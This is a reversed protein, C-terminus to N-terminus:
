PAIGPAADRSPSGRRLRRRSGPLWAHLLFTGPLKEVRAGTGAKFRRLGPSLDARGLDLQSLGARQLDAMIYWLLLNHACHERGRPTTVGAQYTAMRGHKLVLMAAAPDGRLMATYLQAHGPNAAPFAQLFPAPYSRYGRGRQQAQEAEFFWAHRSADLPENIVRLPSAEAKKLQNRWKPHLAGRMEESAKLNLISLEAGAVLRLGGRPRAGPPANTFLPGKLEARIEKMWDPDTQGERFVPGRSALHFTGIVPLKRSQVLCTGNASMFRRVPLGLARCTREFAESQSLPLVFDDM